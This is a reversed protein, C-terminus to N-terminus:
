KRGSKPGWDGKGSDRAAGFIFGIITFFVIGGLGILPGYAPMGPLRTIIFLFLLGILCGGLSWWVKAPIDKLVSRGTVKTGQRRQYSIQEYKAKKENPDYRTKLRQVTDLGTKRPIKDENLCPVAHFCDAAAV